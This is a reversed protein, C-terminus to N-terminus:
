RDRRAADGVDLDALDDADSAALAALHDAARDVEAAVDDPLDRTAADALYWRMEHVARLTGFAAFM